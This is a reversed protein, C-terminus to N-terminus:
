SALDAIDWHTYGVERILEATEEFLPTPSIVPLWEGERTIKVEVTQLNTNWRVDYVLAYGLPHVLGDQNYTELLGRVDEEYSTKSLVARVRRLRKTTVEGLFTSEWGMMVCPNDDRRLSRSIYISDNATLHVWGLDSYAVPRPSEGEIVTPEDLMAVVGCDAFEPSVVSLMKIRSEQGTHDPDVHAYYYNPEVAHYRAIRRRFYPDQMGLPHYYALQQKIGDKIVLLLDERDSAPDEVVIYKVIAKLNKVISDPLKEIDRANYVRNVVTNVLHKSLSM